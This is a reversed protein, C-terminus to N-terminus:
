QCFCFHCMYLYKSKCFPFQSFLGKKETSEIYTCKVRSSACSLQQKWAEWLWVARFSHQLFYPVCAYFIFKILKSAKPLKHQKTQTLIYVTQKCTIFMYGELLLFGFVLVTQLGSGSKLNIYRTNNWNLFMVLYCKCNWVKMAVCECLFSQSRGISKCM